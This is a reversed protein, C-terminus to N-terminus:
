RNVLPRLVKLARTLHAEVSKISMDLRTAIDANTMGEYRSLRFVAQCKAPLRDIAEKVDLIALLDAEGFLMPDDPIDQLSAVHREVVREHRLYAFARNRAATYLYAGIGQTLELTVRRRWIALFLEQVIEEAVSRSHVYRRVFAILGPTFARFMAEFAFEEGHRFRVLWDPGFEPVPDPTKVAAM